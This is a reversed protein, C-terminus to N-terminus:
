SRGTPAAGNMSSSTGAEPKCNTDVPGLYSRPTPGTWARRAPTLFLRLAVRAALPPSVRQLLALGRRLRRVTEPSVHPMRMPQTEDLESGALELAM